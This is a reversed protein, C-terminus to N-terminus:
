PGFPNKYIGKLPNAKEFPNTEAEYPNVNPVSDTPMQTQGAIEEGLTQSDQASPVKPNNSYYRWVYIGAAILVLAAVAVTMKSKAESEMILNDPSV